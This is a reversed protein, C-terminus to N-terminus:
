QRKIMSAIILGIILFLIVAVISYLENAYAGFFIGFLVVMCGLILATMAFRAAMVTIVLLAIFVFILMSGSFTNVFLCEFDLPSIVGTCAM